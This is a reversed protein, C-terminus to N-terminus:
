SDNEFARLAKKMEKIQYTVCVGLLNQVYLRVRVMRIPSPLLM